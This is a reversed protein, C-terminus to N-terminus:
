HHYTCTSITKPDFSRWRSFRIKPPPESSGRERFCGGERPPTLPSLVVEKWFFVRFEGFASTITFGCLLTTSTDRNM